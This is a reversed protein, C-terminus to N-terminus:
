RGGSGPTVFIPVGGETPAIVLNNEGAGVEMLAEIYRWYLYRQGSVGALSESITQQADRIGEAEARRQNAQEEVVQTQYAEAQVQQERALKQEIAERISPPPEIDRVFFDTIEIGRPTLRNEMITQIQEGIGARETSLIDAAAINAVADRTASRYTNYVFNHVDPMSGVTLYLDLVSDPVLRYRYAADIAITLQDSTLATLRESQGQVPFQVERRPYTTWDRFIAHYLGQEYIEDSVAGTVANKKVAVEYSDVRTCATTGLSVLLVLGMAVAVAAIRLQKTM